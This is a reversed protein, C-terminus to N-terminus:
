HSRPTVVARWTEARRIWPHLVRWGVQELHATAIATVDDTAFATGTVELVCNRQEVDSWVALQYTGGPHREIQAFHDDRTPTAQDGHAEDPQDTIPESRDPPEDPRTSSM